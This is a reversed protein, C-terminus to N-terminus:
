REPGQVDYSRQQRHLSESKMLFIKIQTGFIFSPRVPKSRCSPSYNIVIKIKQHVIGKVSTAVLWLISALYCRLRYSSSSCLIMYFWVWFTQDSTNKPNWVFSLTCMYNLHSESAFFFFFPFVLTFIFKVSLMKNRKLIEMSIVIANNNHIKKSVIFM